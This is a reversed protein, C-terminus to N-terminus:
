QRTIQFESEAIEASKQAGISDRWSVPPEFKAATEHKPESAPDASALKTPLSTMLVKANSLKVCASHIQEHLKQLSSEATVLIANKGLDQDSNPDQAKSCLERLDRDVEGVIGCGTNLNIFPLHLIKGAQHLGPGDEVTVTSRIKRGVVVQLILFLNVAWFQCMQVITYKTSVSSLTDAFVLAELISLQGSPVGFARVMVYDNAQVDMLSTGIKVTDAPQATKSTSPISSNSANRWFLGGSTKFDKLKRFRELRVIRTYSKDGSPATYKYVMELLILEHPSTEKLLRYHMIRVIHCNKLRQEFGGDRCRVSALLKLTNPIEGSFPTQDDLVPYVVHTPDMPQKSPPTLTPTTSVSSPPPNSM